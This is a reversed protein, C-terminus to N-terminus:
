GVIAARSAICAVMARRSFTLSYIDLLIFDDLLTWRFFHFSELILCIIEANFIKVSVKFDRRISVFKNYKFLSALVLSVAVVMILKISPSSLEIIAVVSCSM